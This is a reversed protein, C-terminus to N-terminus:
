EPLILIQKIRSRVGPHLKRHPLLCVLLLITACQCLIQALLIDVGLALVLQFEYEVIPLNPREVKSYSLDLDSSALLQLLFGRM